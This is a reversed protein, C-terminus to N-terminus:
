TTLKVSLVLDPYLVPNQDPQSAYTVFNLAVHSSILVEIAANGTGLSAIIMSKTFSQHCDPTSPRCHPNAADGGAEGCFIVEPEDTLSALM